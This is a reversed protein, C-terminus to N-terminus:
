AMMERMKKIARDKICQVTPIAMGSCESIERLTYGENFLSIVSWEKLSLKQLANKLDISTTIDDETIGEGGWIPKSTEPPNVGYSELMGIKYAM